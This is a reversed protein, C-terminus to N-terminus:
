EKATVIKKLGHIHAFVINRNNSDYSKLDGGLLLTLKDWTRSGLLTESWAPLEIPPVVVLDDNKHAAVIENRVVIQNLFEAEVYLCGLLSLSWLAALVVLIKVRHRFFSEVLPLVEKLAALSAVM